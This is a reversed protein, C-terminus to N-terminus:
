LKAEALQIEVELGSPKLNRCRVAGRCAEMCAKVIALGLGVGGTQHNRSPDLRYFPTFIEELAAEPVGPGRDAVTIYVQSEEARASVRIPGAHGAYRIANRVLNSIARFLYEPDALANLTGDVSTEVQGDLSTERELVRAVTAAVNVSVLKVELGEIGARSFSLLEGVLASMHQM